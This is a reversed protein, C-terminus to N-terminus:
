IYLKTSIFYLRTWEWQVVIYIFLIFKSNQVNLTPTLAGCQCIDTPEDSAVKKSGGFLLLELTPTVVVASCHQCEVAESMKRWTGTTDKMLVCTMDNECGSISAIIAPEGNVDVVSFPHLNGAIGEIQTEIESWLPVSWESKKMAITILQNSKSTLIKNDGIFYVDEDVVGCYLINFANPCHEKSLTYWKGKTTDLIEVVNVAELLNSGEKCAYGGCVIMWREGYCCVCPLIRPTPVPESFKKWQEDSEEECLVYVNGTLTNGEAGSVLVCQGNVSAVGGLVVPSAISDYRCKTTRFCFVKDGKEMSNMYSNLGEDQHSIQKYGGAVFVKDKVITVSSRMRKVPLSLYPYWSAKFNCQGYIDILDSKKLMETHKVKENEHYENQRKLQKVLCELEIQLKKIKTEANKALNSKYEAESEMQKKVQEYAIIESKQLKDNEVLSQVERSHQNRINSIDDAHESEKRKLSEDKSKCEKTLRSLLTEKRELLKSLETVRQEQLKLKEKLEQQENLSSELTSSKEELQQEQATYQKKLDSLQHQVNKNVHQIELLQQRLNSDTNKESQLCSIEQQQRKCTGQLDNYRSNLDDHKATLDEKESILMSNKQKYVDSTNTIEKITNELTENRDVQTDYRATIQKIAENQRALEKQLSSMKKKFHEKEECHKKALTKTSELEDEQSQVLRMLYLKGEKYQAALIPSEVELEELHRKLKSCVDLANLRKSSEEQLCALAIEQLSTNSEAMLDIFKRRRDVESVKKFYKNQTEVFEETPEPFQETVTHIVTCGFSFIDLKSNYTPKKECAEPAMHAVNGPIRTLTQGGITDLMRAQGLDAIKAVLNKTLLINNANLDRHVVPKEHGHLYQLGCAVDYLINTKILLPLQHPKETLLTSLNTWMKEMVLIPVDSKDEFYVGLFQVISPHRLASLTNIEKRCLETPTPGDKYAKTLFSHIVKAVCPKGNYEAGYVTGYSGSGLVTDTITVNKIISLEASELQKSKNSSWFWPKAM